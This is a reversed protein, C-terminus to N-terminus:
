NMNLYSDDAGLLRAAIDLPPGLPLPDSPDPNSLPLAHSPPPLSHPQLAGEDEAVSDKIDAM